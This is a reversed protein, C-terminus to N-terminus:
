IAYCSNRVIQDILNNHYDARHAKVKKIFINQFNIKSMKRWLKKEDRMEFSNFFAEPVEKYLTKLKILRSLSEVVYSSDSMILGRVGNQEADKAAMYVAAAEFLNVYGLHTNEVQRIESAKNHPTYFGYAACCTRGNKRGNEWIARVKGYKQSHIVSADTYYIIPFPSM